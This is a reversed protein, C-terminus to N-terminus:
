KPLTVGVRDAIAKVRWAPMKKLSTIAPPKLLSTSIGSARIVKRYDNYDKVGKFAYAKVPSIHFVTGDERLIITEMDYGKLTSNVIEDFRHTDKNPFYSFHWYEDAADQHWGHANMIAITVIGLRAAETDIAGPRGEAMVHNALPNSPHLARNFGYRRREWGEYYYLQKAWTRGAETIPLLRGIEGDIRAISEAAPAPLQGRGGSLTIINM